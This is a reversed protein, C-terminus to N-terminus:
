EALVEQKLVGIYPLNRYKQNYDMGYGVVFEDPIEFGMYDIPIDIIRRVKKDLLACVKISAPKRERLMGVIYNLTLGTDIIDEILIVHKNEINEDLDKIIRVVGTHTQGSYSSVSLFDLSIPIKVERILDCLFVISGRLVTIFVPNLGDYDDSINKGLEAAKQKLEQENILIQEIDDFM